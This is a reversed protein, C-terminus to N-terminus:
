LKGSNSIAPAAGGLSGSFTQLNSVQRTFLTHHPLLHIDSDPVLIPVGRSFASVCVMSAAFLLSRIISM